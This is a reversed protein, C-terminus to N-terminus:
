ITVVNKIEQKLCSVSKTLYTLVPIFDSYDKPGQSSNFNLSQSLWNFM